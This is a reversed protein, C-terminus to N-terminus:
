LLGSILPTETEQDLLGRLAAIGDETDVPLDRENVLTIIRQVDQPREMILETLGESTIYRPNGDVWPNVQAYPKKLGMAARILAKPIEQEAANKHSWDILPDSNPRYMQLGDIYTVFVSFHTKDCENLVDTVVALNNLHVFSRSMVSSDFVQSIIGANPRTGPKDLIALTDEHIGDVMSDKVRKSLRVKGSVFCWHLDKATRSSSAALAELGSQKQPSAARQPLSVPPVVTASPPTSSPKKHVTTLTGNKTVVPTPVLHSRNQSM